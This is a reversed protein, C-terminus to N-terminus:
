TRSSAATARAAARIPTCSSTAPPPMFQMEARVAAGYKAFPGGHIELMLPYKKPPISIAAAQRDLGPGRPRGRLIQRSRRSRASASTASCTRMSIRDALAAQRRSRRRRCRGAPVRHRAHVRRSGRRVVDRRRYVSPGDGHRRSRRRAGADQRRGRRDLGVKTTGHDDYHFFLGRDGDWSPDDINFDVDATLIARNAAPSISCTSIRARTRSATTTSASMRLVSETRRSLRTASRSGQARDAARGRRFRRRRSLARKRPARIGLGRRLQQVRDARTGDRTWAPMGMFNHKGQTIQRAAGGDAAVVFVQTYGPDIYGGGDMRYIVRDIVRRRRRGSPAKRRRRCRRSRRDPAPVRM